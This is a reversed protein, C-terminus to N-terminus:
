SEFGVHGVWGCGAFSGEEEADAEPEGDDDDAEDDAAGGGDREDALQIEEMAKDMAELERGCDAFPDLGDVGADEIAVGAIGEKEVAGVPEGEAMEDDGDSKDAREAIGDAVEPNDIEADDGAKEDNGVGEDKATDAADGEPPAEEIAGESDDADDREVERAAGGFLEFVELIRRM